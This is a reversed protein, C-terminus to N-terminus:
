QAAAIFKKFLAKIPKRIFAPLPLSRLAHLRLLLFIYLNRTRDLFTQKSPSTKVAFSISDILGANKFYRSFLINKTVVREVDDYTDHYAILGGEILHPFWSDFDLKASEYAHAGDIWLFEVPKSWDKAVNESRDVIPEVFSEVGAERINKKFEDFTWINKTKFMAHHEPAGTHPDIAYVKGGPGNKLGSALLITSKGKWSGIEITVGRGACKKATQYLFEGERRTLWGDVKEVFNEIQSIETEMQSM